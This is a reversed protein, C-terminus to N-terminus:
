GTDPFSTEICGFVCFCLLIFLLDILGLIYTNIM